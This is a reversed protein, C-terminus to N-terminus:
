DISVFVFHFQIMAEVTDSPKFTAPVGDMWHKEDLRSLTGRLQLNQGAPLPPRILNEVIYGV